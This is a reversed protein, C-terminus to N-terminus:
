SPPWVGTKRLWKRITPVSVGLEDAVEKQPMDEEIYLKRLTEADHWPKPSTNGQSRTEIGLKDFANSVSKQTVGLEDAIEEQTMGDEWYMERLFENDWWESRDSGRTIGNKEFHERLHDDRNKVELNELRNDWRFGNKHHVHTTEDFIDYPDAGDAIVILNSHPASDRNEPCMLFEYGNYMEMM